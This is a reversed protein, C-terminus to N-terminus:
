LGLICAEIITRKSIYRPRLIIDESKVLSEKYKLMVEVNELETKERSRIYRNHQKPDFRQDFPQLEFTSKSPGYCKQERRRKKRARNRINMQAIIAAM